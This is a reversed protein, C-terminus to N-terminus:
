KPQRIRRKAPKSTSGGAEIFKTRALKEIDVKNRRLLSPDLEEGAQVEVSRGHQFDHYRFDKTAIM